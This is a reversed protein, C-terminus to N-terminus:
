PSPVPGPFTHEPDSYELSSWCRPSRSHMNTAKCISPIIHGPHLSFPSPFVHYSSLHSRSLSCLFCSFTILASVKLRPRSPALLDGISLDPPLPGRLCIVFSSESLQFPSCNKNLSHDYNPKGVSQNMSYLKQIRWQWSLVLLKTGPSPSPCCLSQLTCLSWTWCTLTRCLSCFGSQTWRLLCFEPHMATILGKVGIGTNYRTPLEITNCLKCSYFLDRLFIWTKHCLFEVHICVAM